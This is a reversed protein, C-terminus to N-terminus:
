LAQFSAYRNKHKQLQFAAVAPRGCVEKSAGKHHRDDRGLRRSCSCATRALLSLVCVIQQQSALYSALNPTDQECTGRQCPRQDFSFSFLLQM